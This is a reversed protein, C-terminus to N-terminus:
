WESSCCMSIHGLSTQGLTLIRPPQFVMRQCAVIMTFDCDEDKTLICGSLIESKTSVKIEDDVICVLGGLDLLFKWPMLKADVYAVEIFKCLLQVICIMAECSDFSVVGLCPLYANRGRVYNISNNWWTLASFMDHNVHLLINCIGVKRTIIKPKAHFSPPSHWSIWM